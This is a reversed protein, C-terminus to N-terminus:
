NENETKAERLQKAQNLHWDTHRNEQYGKHKKYKKKSMTKSYIGQQM